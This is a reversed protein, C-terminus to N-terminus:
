NVTGYDFCKLKYITGTTIRNELPVGPEIEQSSIDTIEKYVLGIGYAYQEYSLLKHIISSDADHIITLVSDYGINNIQKHEDIGAIKILKPPNSNYVNCDWQKDILLPFRINVIRLNEEFLEARNNILKASWIDTIEFTNNNFCKLIEIRYASDGSSEIFPIDVQWRMYYNTTDYINSPKDIYIETVEYDIFSGTELPFYKFENDYYTPEVPDKGCSVAILTILLISIIVKYFMNCLYNNILSISAKKYLM